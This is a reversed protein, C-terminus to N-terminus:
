PATFSGFKPLLKEPLKLTRQFMGVFESTIATPSVVAVTPDRIDDTVRVPWSTLTGGVIYGVLPLARVLSDLRSLPAVLVTLESDYPKSGKGSLSISGRAAFGVSNSRFASEDLVFRGREFRGKAAISLYPFGTDDLSVGDKKLSDAVDRLSLIKFILPFQRVRGDRTEVEVKGDLNGLLESRKGSSRIQASLDFEGTMQVGRETLCRASQELQQKQATIQVSFSLVGEPRAEAILPFSIGCLRVQQLELSARQEELTVMAVVPEARREGYQVFGARLAVRGRVPLPWRKWPVEDDESGKKAPEPERADKAPLLADVLVGPSTIQADIVPAGDPARALEGKLAFRQQAWVVSAERIRLKQGDAQVDVREITVPRGLLWALDVSDGELKGTATAREPHALDVRFRLDGSAGGSPLKAGKLAAGISASQLTGSFRGQALGKELRLTLSADSKADKIATRRLDLLAPSWALDVDVGPGGEFAATATLDLPQGPSWAARRVEFRVPTKLLVAAPAKAEKWIWALSGEGVSGESVTGQIRLPGGYDITASALGRADLLSVDAREIRVASATIRVSGSALKVPGPLGEMGVSADSKRIDVVASWQSRGLDFRARGQVRGAVPEFRALAKGSDGPLLRRTADLAQSLDLDFDAASAVSGTKLAYRVSGGTLRTPGLDGRGLEVAIEGATAAVRAAVAVAPVQVRENGQLLEVTRARLEIRTELKSKGDSRGEARLTAGELAVKVPSAELLRDLWPQPKVDTIEAKAEGSFDGFGVKVTAQLRKWADSSAALELSLGEDDTRARLQLARVRVPPMGAAEIETEGDDIDLSTEPAFRRIAEVVSRYTEVPTAGAEEPKASEPPGSAAVRLRISPKELNVSAIEARGRLLPLLRLRADVSEARVSAVGPIEAVVKSLSGRPSPLLRISLKEWAIEGQVAQSLKQKLEREVAPTDLFAPVALAAAVLVVVLAAVCYAAYRVARVTPHGSM